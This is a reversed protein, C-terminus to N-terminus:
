CVVLSSFVSKLSGGWEANLVIDTTAPAGEM